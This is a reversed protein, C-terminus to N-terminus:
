PASPPGIRRGSDPPSGGRTRPTQRRTAQRHRSGGAGGRRAQYLRTIPPLTTSAEASAASTRPRMDARAHNSVAQASDTGSYKGVRAHIQRGERQSLHARDPGVGHGSKGLDHTMRGDHETFQVGDRGVLNVMQENSGVDEVAAGSVDHVDGSDSVPRRQGGVGAAQTADVGCYLYVQQLEGRM